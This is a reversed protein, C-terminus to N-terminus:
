VCSQWGATHGQAPPLKGTGRRYSPSSLLMQMLPSDDSGFVPCNRRPAQGASPRGRQCVPLANQKGWGEGGGEQWLSGNLILGRQPASAEEVGGLRPAPHSSGPWQQNQNGCKRQKSYCGSSAPPEPSRQLSRPVPLAFCVAGQQPRPWVSGSGDPAPEAPSSSGTHAKQDHPWRSRELPALTREGRTLGPESHLPRLHTPSRLFGGCCGTTLAEEPPAPQRARM